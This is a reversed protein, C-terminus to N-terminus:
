HGEVVTTNQDSAPREREIVTTNQGGVAAGSRRSYAMGIALLIAFALVILLLLFFWTPMDSIERRSSFV